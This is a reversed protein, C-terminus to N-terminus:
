LCHRFTGIQFCPLPGFWLAFDVRETPRPAVLFRLGGGGEETEAASTRSIGPTNSTIEQLLKGKVSSGSRPSSQRREQLGMTVEDQEVGEESVAYRRQPKVAQRLGAGGRVFVTAPLAGYSFLLLLLGSALVAALSSGRLPATARQKAVTAM